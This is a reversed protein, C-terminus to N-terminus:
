SSLPKILRCLILEEIISEKTIEKGKFVKKGIIFAPLDDINHEIALLIAKRDNYPIKEVKCACKKDKIIAELIILIDNCHKCDDAYLYPINKINLPM